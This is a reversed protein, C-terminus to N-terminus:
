GRSRGNHKRNKFHRETLKAAIDFLLVSKRYNGAKAEAHAWGCLTAWQDYFIHDKSTVDM